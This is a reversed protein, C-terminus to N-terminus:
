LRAVKKTRILLHPSMLRIFVCVVIAYYIFAATSRYFIIRYDYNTTSIYNGVQTGYQMLQVACVIYASWKVPSGFYVLFATIIYLIDLIAFFGKGQGHRVFALYQVYTNMIFALIAPFMTLIATAKETTIKKGEILEHYPGYKRDMFVKRVIVYLLVLSMLLYIVTYVKSLFRFSETGLLQQMTNM